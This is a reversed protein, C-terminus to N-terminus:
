PAASRLNVVDIIDRLDNSLKQAERDSKLSDLSLFEAPRSTLCSVSSELDFTFRRLEISRQLSSFQSPDGYILSSYKSLVAYLDDSGCTPASYDALKRFDEIVFLVYLLARGMIGMRYGTSVDSFPVDNPWDGINRGWTILGFGLLKSGLLTTTVSSSTLWDAARATKVREISDYAAFIAEELIQDTSDQRDQREQQSSLVYGLEDLLVNLYGTGQLCSLETKARRLFQGLRFGTTDSSHLTTFEQLLSQWTDLGCDLDLKRLGVVTGGLFGAGTLSRGIVQLWYSSPVYFLPEGLIQPVYQSRGTDEIESDDLWDEIQQVIDLRISRRKEDANEDNEEDDDDQFVQQTSAYLMNRGLAQSGTAALRLFIKQYSEVNEERLNEKTSRTLKVIEREIESIIASDTDQRELIENDIDGKVLSNAGWVALALIALLGM